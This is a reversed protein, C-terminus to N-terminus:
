IGRLIKQNSEFKFLSQGRGLIMVKEPNQQWGESPAATAEGEGVKV